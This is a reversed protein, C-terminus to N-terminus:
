QASSPIVMLIVPVAYQAYIELRRGALAAEDNVEPASAVGAADRSVGALSGILQRLVKKVVNLEASQFFTEEREPKFAVLAVAGNEDALGSQRTVVEFQIRGTRLACALLSTLQLQEGSEHLAAQRATLRPGLLKEYIHEDLAKSNAVTENDLAAQWRSV